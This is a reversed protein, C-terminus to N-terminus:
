QTAYYADTSGYRASGISPRDVMRRSQKYLELIEQTDEANPHIKYAQAFAKGLLISLDHREEVAIPVTTQNWNM